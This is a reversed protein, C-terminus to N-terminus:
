YCFWYACSPCKVGSEKAELESGCDPCPDEVKKFKMYSSPYNDGYKRPFFVGRAPDYIKGKRWVVWHWDGSGLSAPIKVLSNNPILSWIDPDVKREAWSKPARIVKLRDQPTSETAYGLKIGGERLQTTTTGSLIGERRWPIARNADEYTVDCLMALAAVGCDRKNRQKVFAM